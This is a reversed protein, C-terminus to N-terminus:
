NHSQLHIQSGDLSTSFRHSLFHPSSLHLPTPPCKESGMLWHPTKETGEERGGWRMGELALARHFAKFPSGLLPIGPWKEKKHGSKSPTIRNAFRRGLLYGAAEAPLSLGAPLGSLAGPSRCAAGSCGRARPRLSARALGGGPDTEAPGACAQAATFKAPLAKGFARALRSGRGTGSIRPGWGSPAGM